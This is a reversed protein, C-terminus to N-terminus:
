EGEGMNKWWLLFVIKLIICESSVIRKALKRGTRGALLLPQLGLQDENTNKLMWIQKINIM